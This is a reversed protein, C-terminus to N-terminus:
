SGAGSVLSTQADIIKSIAARITNAAALLDERIAREANTADQAKIANLVDRHYHVATTHDYEASARALVPGMRMWLNEILEVLVPNNSANYIAFHYAHNAPIIDLGANTIARSYRECAAEIKKIDSVQARNAAEAAALGELCCRVRLINDFEDVSIDCTYFASKQRARLVGDAELRKFAERVPAASVSLLDAISRISIGDGALVQGEMLAKRLSRYVQQEVSLSLSRDVAALHPAPKRARVRRQIVLDIQPAASKM